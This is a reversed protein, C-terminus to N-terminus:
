EMKKQEGKGQKELYQLLWHEKFWAVTIGWGEEFTFQPEYGLDRRANEISFYRHITLMCVNFPNLKLKKGTVWGVVNCVYALTYLLWVPLHWRSFLDQFGMAMGASNIMDWFSRPEGDTVIYFRGLAPSSADVLADAGCLLGHCYNDVYCTSILNKGRGFVRLRGNAMTELLSPLFLADHPGYVQHPAVSITLLSADAAKTIAQEALAKTEAYLAMFRKPFTLQDETPGTLDQGHFRTSPSSSYVLRRVTHTQCGELVHLTGHYNVALYKDRDHFPSHSSRVAHSAGFMEFMGMPKKRSEIGM